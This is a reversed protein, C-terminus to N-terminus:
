EITRTVVGPLLHDLLDVTDAPKQRGHEDGLRTTSRESGLNPPAIGQRPKTPARLILM